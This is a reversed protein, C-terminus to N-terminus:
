EDLKMARRYRRLRIVRRSRGQGITVRKWNVRLSENGDAFERIFHGRMTAPSDPPPTRMARDLEADNLWAQGCPTEVLGAESLRQHYGDESLEHYRLDIKKRAEWSLGAGTEEILRRKAVWDLRGALSEPAQRLAELTEHWQRMVWAARPPLGPQRALALACRRVYWHQLEIASMSRGDRLAVRSRLTPDACIARLAAVPRALEPWAENDDDVAEGNEGEVDGDVDVDRDGDIAGYGAGAGDGGGAGGGAGAGGDMGTAGGNKAKGRARSEIEGEVVDLVLTTTAIRLLEAFPAMNSDGISIQLRQRRRFMDAFDRVNFPFEGIFAKLFHGFSFIPHRFLGDGYGIRCTIGPGKDSLQFRDHEDLWGAGGVVVRSVLFAELARRQPVFVTWRILLTLPLLVPAVAINFLVLMVRELWEPLPSIIDDAELWRPNVLLRDFRGAGVIWRKIFAGCALLAFVSITGLIIALMGIWTVITPLLLAVLGVRWALLRWGTAVTAEYNEQAGYVNGQADRDNKLLAFGGPVAADAASAALLRDQARQYLVAEFPGRCEPTAGEILGTDVTFREAEFWVALSNAAFVGVKSHQAEVVPLRRGLAAVLMRYCRLRSPFSEGAGARGAPVIAYETELGILRDFIRM